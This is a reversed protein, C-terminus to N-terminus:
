DSVGNGADEHHITPRQRRRYSEGEVVLEDSTAVGPGPGLDAPRLPGVWAWMRLVLNWSRQPPDAQGQELRTSRDGGRRWRM